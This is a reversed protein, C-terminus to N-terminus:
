IGRYAMEKGGVRGVTSKNIMVTKVTRSEGERKILKGNRPDEETRRGRKIIGGKGDEDVEMKALAIPNRIVGEYRPYKKDKEVQSGLSDVPPPIKVEQSYTTSSDNGLLSSIQFVSTKNPKVTNQSSQRSFSFTRSFSRPLTVSSAKKHLGLISKQQPQPMVPQSLTKSNSQSSFLPSSCFSVKKTGKHDPNAQNHSATLSRASQTSDISSREKQDPPAYVVALKEIRDILMKKERKMIEIEKDRQELKRELLDCREKEQVLKKVLEVERQLLEVAKGGYNDLKSFNEKRDKGEGRELEAIRKNRRSVSEKLMATLEELEAIILSQQAIQRSKAQVDLTLHSVSLKSTHLQTLLHDGM